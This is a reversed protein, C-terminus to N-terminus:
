SHLPLALANIPLHRELYRPLTVPLPSLVAHKAKSNPAAFKMPLRTKGQKLPTKKAIQPRKQGTKALILMKPGRNKRKERKEWKAVRYVRLRIDVRHLLGDRFLTLTYRRTVDLHRFLDVLHAKLRFHDLNVSRNEGGLCRQCARCLVKQVSIGDSTSADVRRLRLYLRM